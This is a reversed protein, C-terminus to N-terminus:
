ASTMSGAQTNTSSGGSGGGSALENVELAPLGSFGKGIYGTPAVDAPVGSMVSAALQREFMRLLRM